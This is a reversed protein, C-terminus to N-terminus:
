LLNIANSRCFVSLLSQKQFAAWIDVPYSSNEFVLSRAETNYFVQPTKKFFAKITKKEGKGRCILFVLAKDCQPVLLQGLDFLCLSRGPWKNGQVKQYGFTSQEPPIARALEWNQLVLFM